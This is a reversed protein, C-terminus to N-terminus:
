EGIKETITLVTLAPLTVPWALICVFISLPAARERLLLFCMFASLFGLSFYVGIGFAVMLFNIFIDIM